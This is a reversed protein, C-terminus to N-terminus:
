FHEFLGAFFQSEFYHCRIVCLGRVSEMAEDVCEELLVDM